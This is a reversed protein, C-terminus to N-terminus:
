VGHLDVGHQDAFSARRNRTRPSIITKSHQVTHLATLSKRRLKLAARDSKSRPLRPPGNRREHDRLPTSSATSSGGSERDDSEHDTTKNTKSQPKDLTHVSTIQEKKSTDCFPNGGETQVDIRKPCPHVPILFPGSPAKDICVDTMM